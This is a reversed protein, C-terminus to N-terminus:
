NQLEKLSERCKVLHEMQTREGEGEREGEVEWVLTLKISWQHAPFHNKFGQIPLLVSECVYKNKEGIEFIRKERLNKVIYFM